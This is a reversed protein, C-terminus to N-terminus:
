KTKKKGKAQKERKQKRCQIVLNVLQRINDLKKRSEETVKIEFDEEVKALLELFNYLGGSLDGVFCTDLEFSYEDVGYHEAVLPRLRDLIEDSSDGFLIAAQHFKTVFM